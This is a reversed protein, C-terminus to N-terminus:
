GFGLAVPALEDEAVQELFGAQAFAFLVAELFGEVGFGCFVARAAAGGAGVDDEIKGPATM